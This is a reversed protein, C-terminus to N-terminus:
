AGPREGSTSQREGGPAGAFSVPATLADWIALLLVMLAIALVIASPSLHPRSSIPSV